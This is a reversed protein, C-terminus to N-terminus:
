ADPNSLLDFIIVHLVLIHHEKMMVHVNLAIIQTSAAEVATGAMMIAIQLTLKMMVTDMVLWHFYILQVHHVKM